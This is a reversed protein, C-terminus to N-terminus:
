HRIGSVLECDVQNWLAQAIGNRQSQWGCYVCMKDLLSLMAEGWAQWQRRHDDRPGPKESTSTLQVSAAGKGTAKKSSEEAVKVGGCLALGCSRETVEEFEPAEM